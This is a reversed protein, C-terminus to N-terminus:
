AMGQLELEVQILRLWKDCEAQSFFTPGRTGETGLIANLLDLTPDTLARQTPDSPVAREDPKDAKIAGDAGQVLSTDRTYHSEGDDSDLWVTVRAGILSADDDPDEFPMVDTLWLKDYPEFGAAAIARPSFDFRRDHPGDTPWPESPGLADILHQANTHLTAVSTQMAPVHERSEGSRPNSNTM